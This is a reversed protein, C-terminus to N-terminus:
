KTNMLSLSMSKQMLHALHAGVGEDGFLVNGIGLVLIKLFLGKFLYIGSLLSAKVERSVLM